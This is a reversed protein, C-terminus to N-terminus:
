SLATIPEAGCSKQGSFSVAPGSARSTTALAAVEAVGRGRAVYEFTVRPAAPGVPKGSPVEAVKLPVLECIAMGPPYKPPVPASDASTHNLVVLVPVSSDDAEPGVPPSGSEM